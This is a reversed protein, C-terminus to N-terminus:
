SLDDDCLDVIDVLTKLRGHGGGGVCLISISFIPVRNEEHKILIVM